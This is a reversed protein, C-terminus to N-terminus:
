KAADTTAKAAKAVRRKKKWAPTPGPGDDDIPLEKSITALLTAVVLFWGAWKELRSKVPPLPYHSLRSSRRAKPKRAKRAAERLEDVLDVLTEVRLTLLYSEGFEADWTLHAWDGDAAGSSSNLYDMAEDAKLIQTAGPMTVEVLAEGSDYLVSLVGQFLLVRDEDEADPWAVREYASPVEIPAATPFTTPWGGAAGGGGGVLADGGLVLTSDNDKCAGPLVRVLALMTTLLLHKASCVM